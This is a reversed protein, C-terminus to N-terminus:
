EPRAALDARLTRGTLLARGPSLPLVTAPTRDSRDSRDSRDPLPAQSTLLPRLPLLTQGAGRPLATHDALGPLLPRSAQLALLPFLTLLTSGANGARLAALTHLARGTRGARDAQGTDLTRLARGARRPEVLGARGLEGGLDLLRRQVDGGWGTTPGRPPM